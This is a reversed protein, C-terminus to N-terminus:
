VKSRPARTTMADPAFASRLQGDDRMDFGIAYIKVLQCVAHHGALEGAGLPRSRGM